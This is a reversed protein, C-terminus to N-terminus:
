KGFLEYDGLIIIELRVPSDGMLRALFSDTMNGSEYVHPLRMPWVDTMFVPNSLTFMRSLTAFGLDHCLLSMIYASTYLAFPLPGLNHKKLLCRCRARELLWSLKGPLGGGM